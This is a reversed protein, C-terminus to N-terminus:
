DKKTLSEMRDELRDLRRLTNFILWAASLSAVVALIGVAVAAAFTLIVEV